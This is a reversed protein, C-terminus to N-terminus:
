ARSRAEASAPTSSLPYSKIELTSSTKTGILFHCSIQEFVFSPDVFLIRQEKIKTGSFPWRKPDPISLLFGFNM